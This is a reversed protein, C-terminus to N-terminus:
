PNEESRHTFAGTTVISVLAERITKGQFSSALESVLAQDSDGEMRGLSFRLWQKAVCTFFDPSDVLAEVLPRTGTLAGDDIGISPIGGRADVDFGNEQTRHRGIADFEEFAFGIPDIFKHCGACAENETHQSWRERTTANPDPSPPTVEFEAPPPPPKDCLLQGLVFVGRKVPSTSDFLSTVALFAPQTLIGSREDPLPTQEQESVGELGYLFASRPDPWSYEATMLTTLDADGVFLMERLYRFTESLMGARVAESYEPFADPSKNLSALRNLWLWNEFFRLVTVEACPKELLRRAQTEIQATTRLDDNAAAERLEADPPEECISYSLKSAMEWPGLAYLGDQGSVETGVEVLYLFHPSSFIAQLVSRLGSGFSAQSEFLAVLRNRQEPDLPRRYAKPAFEDILSVACEEREQAYLEAGTDIPGVLELSRFTVDLNNNLPVSQLHFQLAHSGAADFTVTSRMEQSGVLGAASDVSDGDVVLEVNVSASADFSFTVEYEGPAEFEGTYTGSPDPAYLTRSHNPDGTTYVSWSPSLALVNGNALVTRSDLVPPVLNDTCLASLEDLRAEAILKKSLEEAIATHADLHAPSVTQSNVVRDFSHELSDPPFQEFAIPVVGTLLEITNRLEHASL